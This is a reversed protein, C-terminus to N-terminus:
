YIEPSISPHGRADGDFDQPSILIESVTPIDKM